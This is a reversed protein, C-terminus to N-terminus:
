LINSLTVYYRMCYKKLKLIAKNIRYNRQPIATEFLTINSIVQLRKHIARGLKEKLHRSIRVNVYAM